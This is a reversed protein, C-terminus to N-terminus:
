DDHTLKKLLFRKNCLVERIRTRGWVYSFTVHPLNPYRSHVDDIVEGVLHGNQDKSKIFCNRYLNSDVGHMYEMVKKGCADM